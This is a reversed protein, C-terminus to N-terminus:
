ISNPHVCLLTFLYIKVQSNQFQQYDYDFDLHLFHSKGWIQPLRRSMIIKNRPKLFSFSFKNDYRLNHELLCVFLYWVKSLITSLPVWIGDWQHRCRCIFPRHYYISPTADFARFLSDLACFSLNFTKRFKVYRLDSHYVTMQIKSSGWQFGLKVFILCKYNGFSFTIDWCFSSKLQYWM